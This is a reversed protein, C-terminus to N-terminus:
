VFLPNKKKGQMLYRMKHKLFAGLLKHIHQSASTIIVDSQFLLSMVQGGHAHAGMIKRYPANKWVSVIRQTDRRRVGIYM